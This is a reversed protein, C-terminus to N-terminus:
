LTKKTVEEGTDEDIIKTSISKESLTRYRKEFSAFEISQTGMLSISASYGQSKLISIHTKVMLWKPRDSYDVELDLIQETVKELDLNTARLYRTSPTWISTESPAFFNPM